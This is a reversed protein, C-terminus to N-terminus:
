CKVKHFYAHVEVCLEKIGARHTILVYCMWSIGTTILTLGMIKLVGITAYYIKNNVTISYLLGFCIAAGVPLFVIYNVVRKATLCHLEVDLIIAIILVILAFTVVFSMFSYCKQIGQWVSIRLTDCRELFSYTGCVIAFVYFLKVEIRFLEKFCSHIILTTKEGNIRQFFAKM